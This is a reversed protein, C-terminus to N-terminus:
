LAMVFPDIAGALPASNESRMCLVWYFRRTHKGTLAFMAVRPPTHACRM